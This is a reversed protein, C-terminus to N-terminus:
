PLLHASHESPKELSVSMSYSWMWGCAPPSAIELGDAVRAVSFFGRVLPVQRARANRELTVQRIVGPLSEDFVAHVAEDQLELFWRQMAELVQVLLPRAM